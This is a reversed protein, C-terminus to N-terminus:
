PKEGKQRRLALDHLAPALEDLQDIVAHVGLRYLSLTADTRLRERQADDLRQWDALSQGCLPGCVALGITWLGANLGAQLLHPDGSILVAGDLQAVQLDILAQWCADPAPWPRHMHTGPAQIWAPLPNALHQCITEPLADLWACPTGWAKLQQLATDAGPTLVAQAQAVSPLDARNVAAQTRAGFDVLCGTLSFLFASFPTPAHM